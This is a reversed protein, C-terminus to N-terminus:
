LFLLPRVALVVVDGVFDSLIRLFLMSAIVVTCAAMSFAHVASFTSFLLEGNDDGADFASELGAVVGDGGVTEDNM